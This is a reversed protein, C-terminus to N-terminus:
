FLEGMSLNHRMLAIFVLLFPHKPYIFCKHTKFIPVQNAKVLDITM